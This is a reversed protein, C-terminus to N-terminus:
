FHASLLRKPRGFAVLVLSLAHFGLGLCAPVLFPITASPALLDIPIAFLYCSFGLIMWARARIMNRWRAASYPWYRLPTLGSSASMDRWCRRAYPLSLLAFAFFYIALFYRLPAPTTDAPQTGRALLPALHVSWAVEFVRGHECAAVLAAGV